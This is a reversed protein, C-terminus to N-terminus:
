QTAAGSRLKAIVSWGRESLSARGGYAIGIDRSINRSTIPRVVIDTRAGVSGEPLITAGVGAAVLALAWEESDVVAVTRLETADSTSATTECHCRAVFPLGRLDDIGIREAFALPHRAPLALVFRERWLRVFTETESVMRKEVIRADAADDAGVLKLRIGPTGAVPALLRTIRATDLSRLLGLTFAEEPEPARFLGRVAATEDVLRKARPYLTEAASTPTVGRKHRLFLKTGLETEIAALAASVSPQSIHCRQSAATLSREEYVALFYRLERIDM